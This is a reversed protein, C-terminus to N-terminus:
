GPGESSRARMGIFTEAVEAATSFKVMARSLDALPQVSCMSQSFVLAEASTALFYRTMENPGRLVAMKATLEGRAIREVRLGARTKGERSKTPGAKWPLGEKEAVRDCVGVSDGSIYPWAKAQCVWGKEGSEESAGKRRVVRAVRSKL